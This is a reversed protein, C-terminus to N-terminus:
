YNKSSIFFKEIHLTKVKVIVRQYNPLGDPSWSGFHSSVQSHTDENECEKV